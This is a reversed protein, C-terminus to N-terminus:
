KLLFRMGIVLMASLMAGVPLVVFSLAFGNLLCWFYGRAWFSLTENLLNGYIPKSKNLLVFGVIGFLLFVFLIIPNQVVSYIKLILTASLWFGSM